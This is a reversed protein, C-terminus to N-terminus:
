ARNPRFSHMYDQKEQGVKDVQMNSMMDLRASKQEEQETEFVISRTM